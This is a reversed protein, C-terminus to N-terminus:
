HWWTAYNGRPFWAAQWGQARGAAGQCPSLTPHSLLLLRGSCVCMSAIDPLFSPSNAEPLVPQGRWGEGKGKTAPRCCRACCSLLSAGTLPPGTQWGRRHSTDRQEEGGLASWRRRWGGRCSGGAAGGAEQRAGEGRGGGPKRSGYASCDGSLGGAECGADRSREASVLAAEKNAWM